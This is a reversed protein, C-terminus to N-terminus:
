FENNFVGKHKSMEAAEVKQRISKGYIRCCFDADRGLQSAAYRRAVECAGDMGPLGHIALTRRRPANGLYPFTKGPSLAPWTMDYSRM